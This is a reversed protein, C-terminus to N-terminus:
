GYDDGGLGILALFLYIKSLIRVTQIIWGQPSTIVEAQPQLRRESIADIIAKYREPFKEKDIYGAMWELQALSLLRLSEIYEQISEPESM